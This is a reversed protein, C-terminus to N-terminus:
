NNIMPKLNFSFYRSQFGADGIKAYQIAAGELNKAEHYLIGLAFRSELNASNTLKALELLAIANEHHSAGISAISALFLTNSDQQKHEDILNNYIAYAQDFEQLYIDAYALAQLSAIDDAGHQRIRNEFLRKAQPVIGAINLMEIYLEKVFADGSYLADLNLSPQSLRSQIERAYHKIATKDNHADLHLINAILNHPLKKVLADSAAQYARNDQRIQALIMELVTDFASKAVTNNPRYIENRIIAILALLAEKQTSKAEINVRDEIHTLVAKDSDHNLLSASLQAFLPAFFHKTDLISSKRFHKYANQFDYMKAYTLALNYHLQASSPYKKIGEKFLANAKYLNHNLAAKIGKTNEINADAIQGSLTLNNQAPDFAHLYINKAGQNINRISQSPNVLRYPAFYFILSFRNRDNFFLNKQFEKQAAVPDFLSPKLIVSIPYLASAQEKYTAYSANLLNSASKYLGMKSEVLALAIKEKLPKSTTQAAKELYKKALTYEAQTAYLLGLTFYDAEKGEKELTKIAEKQNDFATYLKALLQNQEQQYYPSSQHRLPVLSEAYFGRYYDILARYYSYLASTSKEPLAKTALTLYKEFTASDAKSFAAIAINLLSEFHLKENDKAASFAEIAEDYKGKKLAVVGRNYFTLARNYRSLTDYIALAEEKKGAAYLKKAEQIRAEYAATKVEPAKKNKLTTIIEQTKNDDTKLHKKDMYLYVLFGLMAFALLAFIAILIYLKKNNNEQPVDLSSPSNETSSESEEVHEEEEDDDLTIFEEDSEIIDEKAM